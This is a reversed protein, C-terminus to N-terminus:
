SHGILDLPIPQYGDLPSHLMPHHTRQPLEPNVLKMKLYHARLKDDSKTIYESVYYMLELRLKRGRTYTASVLRVM